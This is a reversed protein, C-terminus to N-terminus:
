TVVFLMPRLTHQVTVLPGGGFRQVLRDFGKRSVLTANSHVHDRPLELGHLCCLDRNDVPPPRSRFCRKSLWARSLYCLGELASPPPPGAAKADVGRSQLLRVAEAEAERLLEECARIAPECPARGYFLVYAEQKKVKEESVLTV